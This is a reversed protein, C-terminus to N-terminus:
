SFKRFIRKSIVLLLFLGFALVATKGIYDGHDVYFTSDITSPITHKIVAPEWWNTPKIIDGRNNIFCSIGTNASRMIWRGTEIARLRGYVLHQKYGPTNGWWGDNTIVAIAGAGKHIYENLFEGFVSEYCIVPAIGSATDGYLSIHRFDSSYRM